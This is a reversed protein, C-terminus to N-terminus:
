DIKFGEHKIPWVQRNKNQNKPHKVQVRTNGKGRSLFEPIKGDTGENGV